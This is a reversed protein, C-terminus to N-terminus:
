YVLWLFYVYLLIIKMKYTSTFELTWSTVCVGGKCRAAIEPFSINTRLKINAPARTLSVSAFLFVANCVAAFAPWADM